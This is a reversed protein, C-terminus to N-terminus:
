MQSFLANEFIKTFTEYFPVAYLGLEKDFIVAVDYKETHASFGGVSNELFNSYNNDLERIHFYKPNTLNSGKDSLDIEEGENFAGIIEDAYKNTTLITDKNFTKIFKEYMDAITSKIEEEKEPNGFYLTKPNQILKM